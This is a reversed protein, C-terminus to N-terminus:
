VFAGASVTVVQGTMGSAADSALFAAVAATEEVSIPRGLLPPVMSPVLGLNVYGAGTEQITRTEPMGNARVCNVRVGSPGFEGALARTLGEVAASAASIGAMYPATMVSLTASLTIVSGGGQAAMHKAAARSTLFTSGVITQLPKLFDSMPQDASSQPYGLDVPRGGIGNFVIDINGTQKVVSAVYAEVADADIADVVAIEVQGGDDRIDRALAELRQANRGSLWIRAKDRAFRKAVTSAIAGNAAFVLANKAKLNM